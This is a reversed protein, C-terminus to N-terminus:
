KVLKYAFGVRASLGSPRYIAKTLEEDNFSVVMHEDRFPMLVSGTQVPGTAGSFVFAQNYVLAVQYMMTFRFEFKQAFEAVLSLKPQFGYQQGRYLVSIDADEWFLVGKLELPNPSYNTGGITDTIMGWSLLLEPQLRLFYNLHLRYGLGVQLGGGKIGKVNIESKVGLYFDNVLEAEYGISFVTLLYPSGITNKGSIFSAQPQLTDHRFFLSGQDVKFNKFGLQVEFNDFHRYQAKAGFFCFISLILFYLRQM